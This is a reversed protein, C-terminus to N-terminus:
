KVVINVLRGPVGVVKVITLGQVLEKCEETAVAADALEKASLGSAVMIKCKVKGNVQVAIEETDRILASEDFRPWAECLIPREHGLGEWMEECVHPAFPSLILVLKEAAEHQLARGAKGDERAKYLANVFEMISSIATNFNYREGIDSGVKKITQNMIFRLNKEAEEDADSCGCGGAGDEIVGRVLRWVRGLFRYSGEVGAESWELEKEPPSAFLIFLRATDAGYDAIIAQPDVGNNKSKAMKEIKGISVPGGDSKLSASAVRGQEDFSCDVESANYWRLAGEGEERYYTEALVMGQTLLRTFPEDAPLYGKDYLFKTFFRAYLLHLIAHEVGGIYQDVPMWRRVKDDEFIKENNHADTYRLFYWSSDLFTDMTDIERLAPVGCVPCITHRFTESTVLPSEGKGSFVVDTPLMVPLNEEAEPVWGCLECYVMPIPTGWYRQRSILWDRLRFNVAATGYGEEEIFSTIADIAELNNLGNFRGSNIMTGEAVFAAKLDDVDVDELGPDVVPIIDLGYKVAFEFDRTDHAPVAMIAGTGYDMLVYNAIYIPVRAGNLPNVAYRGIFLGEKELTLSARDIDNLFQLKYLFEEVPAEFETGRTLPGVFPHEPALVMYTVGFLTDPRTTFIRLKEDFGEIAFDVDAGTSRGIWNQQMTKVNQPWSLKDLDDLLRQAYKTIALYWQELNKKEVLSGCRECAGEVVQENALVTECSPCWNVPNKKKYALGEKFFQVFIWQTWKYYDPSCTAVEREWDYSIGLQKLQGRMAAMHERTWIDPHIGNKIAANEAPLGFADWGMPHLVNHGNMRLYRAAVDGISYNRVHGMHLKGSPYPFMELLYFPAGGASDDTRFLSEDEWRKQWKAEIEKFEYKERMM